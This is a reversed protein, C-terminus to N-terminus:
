EFLICGKNKFDEIKELLDEVTTDLYSSLCEMCFSKDSTTDILKKSLGIENKNLSVGCVACKVRKGM